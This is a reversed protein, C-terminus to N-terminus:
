APDPQGARERAWRSLRRAAPLTAFVVPLCILPLWENMTLAGGASRPIMFAAAAWYLMILVFMRWERRVFENATGGILERVNRRVEFALSDVGALADLFIEDREPRGAALDAREQAIRLCVADFAKEDAAIARDLIDRLLAVAKSRFSKPLSQMLRLRLWPPMYGDRFWPLVALRLARADSYLPRGATAPSTLKLGLYVTLDWRVAPYIACAAFWWFGDEDFRGDETFYRELERELDLRDDEPPTLPILWLQPDATWSWRVPKGPVDVYEGGPHDHREFLEALRLLGEPDAKLPPADFLRALAAEQAGWEEQPRPTLIARRPWSTIDEAWPWVAFTGLNLLQDGTGLFILRHDPYFAALEDIRRFASQPSEFCINADHAIFYRVLSLNQAALDQVFRDLQRAAHDEPGKSSILVLYEPTTRAPM